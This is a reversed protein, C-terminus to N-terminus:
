DFIIHLKLPEEFIYDVKKATSAMQFIKPVISKTAFGSIICITPPSPRMIQM